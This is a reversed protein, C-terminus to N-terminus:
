IKYGRQMFNFIIRLYNINLFNISLYIMIQHFKAIKRKKFLIHILICLFWILWGIRDNQFQKEFKFKLASITKIYKM